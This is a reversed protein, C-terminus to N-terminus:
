NDFKIEEPTVTTKGTAAKKAATKPSPQRGDRAANEHVKPNTDRPVIVKDVNKKKIQGTCNSCPRQDVAVTHPKPRGELDKLVQTEAHSKGDITSERVPTLNGDGDRGMGLTGHGSTDNKARHDVIGDIMDQDTAGKPVISSSLAHTTSVDSIGLANLSKSDDLGWHMESSLNIGGSAVKANVAGNASLAMVTILLWTQLLNMMKM